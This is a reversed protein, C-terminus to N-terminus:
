ARDQAAQGQMREGRLGRNDQACVRGAHHRRCIRTAASSAATDTGAFILAVGRKHEAFRRIWRFTETGYPSNLFIRGEWPQPLGDDSETYHRDATDRPRRIPTCPDLDFHGLVRILAPPTLWVNTTEETRPTNFGEGVPSPRSKGHESTTSM